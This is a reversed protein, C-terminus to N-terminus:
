GDSIHILFPWLCLHLDCLNQKVLVTVFSSTLLWSWHFGSRIQCEARNRKFDWESYQFLLWFLCPIKSVTNRVTWPFALSLYSMFLFLLTRTVLFKCFYNICKQMLFQKMETKTSSNRRVTTPVMFLAYNKKPRCYLM